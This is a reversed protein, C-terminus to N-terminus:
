WSRHANDLITQGATRDIGNRLTMTAM